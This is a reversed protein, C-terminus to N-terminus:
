IVISTSVMACVQHLSSRLVQKKTKEWNIKAMVAKKLDRYTERADKERVIQFADIYKAIEKDEDIKRKRKRVYSLMLLIFGMSYVLLFVVAFGAAGAQDYGEQGLVCHSCLCFKFRFNHFCLSFMTLVYHSCLSFM